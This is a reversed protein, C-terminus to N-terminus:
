TYIVECGRKVLQLVINTKMAYCHKQNVFIKQWWNGAFAARLCDKQSCKQSQSAHLSLNLNAKFKCNDQRFSLHWFRLKHERMKQEINWNWIGHSTLVTNDQWCSSTRLAVNSNPSSTMSRGVIQNAQAQSNSYDDRKLICVNYPHSRQYVTVTSSYISPTYECEWLSHIRM